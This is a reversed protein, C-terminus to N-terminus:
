SWSPLLPLPVKLLTGFILASVLTLALGLAVARTWSQRYFVRAWIVVLVITPVAFGAYPLLAAYACGIVVAGIPTARFPEEVASRERLVMILLPLLLVAATFPVLGAGPGDFTWFGLRVSGVAFGLAMAALLLTAIPTPLLLRSLV